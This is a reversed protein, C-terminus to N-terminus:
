SVLIITDIMKSYAVRSTCGFGDSGSNEDDGTKDGIESQPVDLRPHGSYLILYDVFSSFSPSGYWEKTM